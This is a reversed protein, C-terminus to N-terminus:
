FVRKLEAPFKEIDEPYLEKIEEIVDSGDMLQGNNKFNELFWSKGKDWYNKDDEAARSSFLDFDSNDILGDRLLNEYIFILEHEIDKQSNDVVLNYKLKIEDVDFWDIGHLARYSERLMEERASLFEVDAHRKDKSLRGMRIQKDAMLFISYYSSNKGLRFAGIDSEMIFGKSNVLKYDIYKDYVPGFDIELYEDVQVRDKGTDSKQMRRGLERFTETGRLLKYGFNNTLILSLATAGVGPWGSIMINVKDKIM